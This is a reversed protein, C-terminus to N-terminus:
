RGRARPGWPATAVTAPSTLGLARNDKGERMHDLWREYWSLFDPASSVNPPRFGDANGTLVRGTLPGTVGILCLDTCGMEIIHLFLDGRAADPHLAHHFGRPSGDPPQRDMTFLRCEELPLLGYFPGAGVGLEVLFTRYAWPLVIHHEAEFTDVRAAGVRPGPRFEHREAGASHSRRAQYPIKALKSRIRATRSDM